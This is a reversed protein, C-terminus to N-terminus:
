YEEDSEEEVDTEEEEVEISEGETKDGDENMIVGLERRGAAYLAEDEEKLEKATRRMTPILVDIVFDQLQGGFSDYQSILDPVLEELRARLHADEKTIRRLEKPSYRPYPQETQNPDEDRCTRVTDCCTHRIELYSFVFLRIYGSVLRSHGLSDAVKDVWLTVELLM